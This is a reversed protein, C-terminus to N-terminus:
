SIFIADLVLFLGKSDWSLNRLGIAENYVMLKANKGITLQGNSAITITNLEVTGSAIVPASFTSFSVDPIFVNSFADPVRNNSWNRAENWNREQGPTGGLWTTAQQAFTSTTIFTCIVMFLTKM